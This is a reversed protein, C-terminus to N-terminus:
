LKMQEEGELDIRSGLTVTFGYDGRFPSYRRDGNSFVARLVLICCTVQRTMCGARCESKQPKDKPFMEQESKRNVRFGGTPRESEVKASSIYKLKVCWHCGIPSIKSYCKETCPRIFLLPTESSFLSNWFSSFCLLSYGLLLHTNM